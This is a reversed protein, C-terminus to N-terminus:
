PGLGRKTRIRDLADVYKDEFGFSIDLRARAMLKVLRKVQNVKSLAFFPDSVKVTQGLVGASSGWAETTGAPARTITLQQHNIAAYMKDFRDHIAAVRVKDTQTPLPAPPSTRPSGDPGPDTLDPAFALALRHMTRVKSENTGATEWAGKALSDALNQYVLGTDFDGYNLWSELWAVARETQETDSGAGASKMGSLTDPAAPGVTMSGPSHVLRMLLVYSDTNRRSDSALLFPILRTSSYAIDKIEELPNAHAAEHLLTKIRFDLSATLFSPCLTMMSGGAGLGAGKNYAPRDCGGDCSTNCRHATSLQRVQKAIATVNADVDARPVGDFFRKVVATAAATPTTVIDKEAKDVVAKATPFAETFKAECRTKQAGKMSESGAAGCPNVTSPASLLGKPTPLVEVSRRSRYDLDGVGDDPHHKWVRKGKHGAALLLADVATLRAAVIAARAAAASDESDFGHLTLDGSAALTKIKPLEPAPVTAGGRAFFIRDTQSAADEPLANIQFDEAKRRVAATASQQVVHTLEHAILQRGDLTEPRFRGAGFVIDNGLTYAHADLDRASRAASSDTHVRVGSFDRGFRSEFFTRTADDLPRGSSGPRASWGASGPLQTVAGQDIPARLAREAIADAEREYRDEAAGVKLVSRAQCRPCEGGCACHHANSEPVGAERAGAHVAGGSRGTTDAARARRPFAPSRAVAAARKM